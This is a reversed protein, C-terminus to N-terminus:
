EEESATVEQRYAYTGPLAPKSLFGFGRELKVYLGRADRAAVISGNRLAFPVDTCLGCFDVCESVECEFDKHEQSIADKVANSHKTLNKKCWKLSMSSAM